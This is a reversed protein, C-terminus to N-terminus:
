HNLSSAADYISISWAPNTTSIVINPYLGIAFLILLIATICSSFVFATFYKRGDINRKINLVTLM